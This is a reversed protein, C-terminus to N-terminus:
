NWYARRVTEAPPRKLLPQHALCLKKKMNIADAISQCLWYRFVAATKMIEAKIPDLKDLAEVPLSCLAYKCLFPNFGAKWVNTRSYGVLLWNGQSDLYAWVGPHGSEEPWGEEPIGRSADLFLLERNEVQAKWRRIAIVGEAEVKKEAM